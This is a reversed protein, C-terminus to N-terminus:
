AISPNQHLDHTDYIPDFSSYTNLNINTTLTPNFSVFMQLPERPFVDRILQDPDVYCRLADPHSQNSSKAEKM